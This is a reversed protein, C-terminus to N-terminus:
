ASHQTGNVFDQLAKLKNDAKAVAQRAAHQLNQPLTKIVTDVANNAAASQSSALENHKSKPKTVKDSHYADKIEKKGIEVLNQQKLDADRLRLWVNEAGIVKLATQLNEFYSKFASMKSHNTDVGSASSYATVSLKAISSFAPSRNSLARASSIIKPYWKAFWSSKRAACHRGLLDGHGDDTMKELSMNIKHYEAVLDNAISKFTNEESSSSIEYLKM